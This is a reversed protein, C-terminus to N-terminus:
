ATKLKVEFSQGGLKTTFHSPKEIVPAGSLTGTTLVQGRKLHGGMPLGENASRVVSKLVDGDPHVAAGDFLVRGENELRLHGLDAGEDLLARDLEPGVLYGVNSMCDALLLGLSSGAGGVYRTRVLEVGIHVSEIAELVEGRSYGESRVPLDQGLVLALEIEVKIESEFGSEPQRSVFLLPAGILVGERISFKYGGLEIGLASTVASQVAYFAGAEPESLGDKEIVSGSRMADVLRDVLMSHPMTQTQNM